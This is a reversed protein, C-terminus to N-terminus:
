TFIMCTWRVPRAMRQMGTAMAGGGRSRRWGAEAGRVGEGTQAWNQRWEYVFRLSNV